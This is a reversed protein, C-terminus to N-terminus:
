TENRGPPSSRSGLSNAATASKVGSVAASFGSQSSSRQSSTMPTHRPSRPSLASIVSTQPRGITSCPSATVASSAPDDDVLALEDVLAERQQRGVAVAAARELAAEEVLVAVLERM